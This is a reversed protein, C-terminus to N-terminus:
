DLDLVNMKELEIGKNLKKREGFYILLLIVTPINSLLFILIITAIMQITNSDEVQNMFTNETVIVENTMESVTETTELTEVDTLTWFASISLVIMISFLFLIIPLILGLWKNEQKSFYIQLWIVGGLILLLILLNFM